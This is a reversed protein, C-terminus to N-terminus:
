LMSLLAKGASAVLSWDIKSAFRRVRDFFSEGEVARKKPITPDYLDKTSKLAALRIKTNPDNKKETITEPVNRILNAAQALEEPNWCSHTASVVSQISQNPIAEWNVTIVLEGLTVSPNTGMFLIAVWPYSLDADEVMPLGCLDGTTPDTFGSQGIERVLNYPNVAVNWPAVYKYTEVGGAGDDARYTFNIWGQTTANSQAGPSPQNSDNVNTFELARYEFDGDDEPGWFTTFGTMANVETKMATLAESMYAPALDGRWHDTTPDTLGKVGTDSSDWTAPLSQGSYLGTGGVGQATLAAETPIFEVSMSVPRIAACTTTISSLQSTSVIHFQKGGIWAPDLTDGGVSQMKLPANSIGPNRRVTYGGFNVTPKIATYYNGSADSEVTTKFSTQLTISPITSDDPIKADKTGAPNLLSEAYLNKDVPTRRLAKAKVTPGTRQAQNSNKTRRQNANQVM